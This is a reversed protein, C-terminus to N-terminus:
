MTVARDTLTPASLPISFCPRHLTNILSAIFRTAWVNVAGDAASAPAPTPAPFMTSISQLPTCLNIHLGPTRLLMPVATPEARRM